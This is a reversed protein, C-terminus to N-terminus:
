VQTEMCSFPNVNEPPGIYGALKEIKNETMVPQSSFRLM